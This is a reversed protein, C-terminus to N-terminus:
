KKLASRFANIAHNQNYNKYAEGSYECIKIYENISIDRIWKIAETFSKENYVDFIRGNRHEEIIEKAMAKESCLIPVNLASSENVVWGWSDTESPFILAKSRSLINYKEDGELHGHFHINIGHSIKELYSRQPGDGIVDIHINKIKNNKINLILKDLGKNPYNRLYGIFCFRNEAHIIKIHKERNKRLDDIKEPLLTEPYGQTGIICKEPPINFKRNLLDKTYKGYVIIKHSRKYIIEQLKSLVKIMASNKEYGNYTPFNGTWTIIKKRIINYYITIITSSIINSPNELIVISSINKRLLIKLPPISIVVSKGFIKMQINKCFYYEHNSISLNETWKRTKDEKEYYVLTLDYDDALANFIPIRYPAPINHYIIIKEKKM